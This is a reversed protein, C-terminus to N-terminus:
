KSRRRRRKHIEEIWSMSIEIWAGLESLGEMVALVDIM